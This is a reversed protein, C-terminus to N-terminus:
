EKVEFNKCYAEKDVVFGNVLMIGATFWGEFVDGFVEEPPMVKNGEQYGNLHKCGVAKDNKAPLSYKCNKCKILDVTM